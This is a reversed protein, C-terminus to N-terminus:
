LGFLTFAKGSLDQLAERAPENFIAAFLTMGFGFIILGLASVPGEVLTRRFWSWNLIEQDKLTAELSGATVVEHKRLAEPLSEDTVVKHERLAELFAAKDWDRQASLLHSTLGDIAAKELRELEALTLQDDWAPDTIAADYPRGKLLVDEAVWRNAVYHGIALHWGVGAGAEDYIALYRNRVAVWSM